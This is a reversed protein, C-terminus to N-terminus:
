VFTTNGEQMGSGCCLLRLNKICFYYLHFLNTYLDWSFLFPLLSFTFNQSNGLFNQNTAKWETRLNCAFRLWGFELKIQFARSFTPQLLHLTSRRCSTEFNSHNSTLIPCRDFFRRTQSSPKKNSAHGRDKTVNEQVTQVTFCKWDTIVTFKASQFHLSHFGNKDQNWFLWIHLKLIASEIIREGYINSARVRACM